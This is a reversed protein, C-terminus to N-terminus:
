KKLFSDLMRNQEKEKDTLEKECEVDEIVLKKCEVKFDASLINLILKNSTEEITLEDIYRDTTNFSIINADELKLNVYINSYDKLKDSTLNMTQIYGECSIGMLLVDNYFSLHIIYADHFNPFKGFVKIIKDINIIKNSM